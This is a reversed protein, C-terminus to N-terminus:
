LRLLSCARWEESGYELTDDNGLAASRFVIVSAYLFGEHYTGVIGMGPM